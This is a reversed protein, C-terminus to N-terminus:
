IGNLLHARQTKRFYGTNILLTDGVHMSSVLPQHVHGFYVVRPQYKEIYNLLHASGRENRRALTDFTLEPIDPPVHSCVIDVEGLGDLKTNYEEEPIEGAVKLPTPLGGGVFGVKFGDCVVVRGDVIEIGDGVISEMMMPPDINGAIMYTRCPIAEKVESYAETLLQMFKTGIEDERDRRRDIMLQRAEAGKGETRLRVVEEVSEVGFIDVLIGEMEIYDIINVLDGLLLLTDESALETGLGGVGGHLDSIIKFAM